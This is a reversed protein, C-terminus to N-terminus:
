MLIHVSALLMRPKPTLTLPYVGQFDCLSIHTLSMSLIDSLLFNRNVHGASIVCCPRDLTQLRQLEPKTEVTVQSVCTFGTNLKDFLQLGHRSAVHQQAPWTQKNKQKPWNITTSCFSLWVHSHCLWFFLWIFCVTSLLPLLQAFVTLCGECMAIIKVPPIFYQSHSPEVLRLQCMCINIRNQSIDVKGQAKLQDNTLVVHLCCWLSILPLPSTEHNIFLLHVCLVERISSHQSKNDAIWNWRDQHHISWILM